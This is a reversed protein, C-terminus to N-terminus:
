RSKEKKSGNESAKTDMSPIFASMTIGNKPHPSIGLKGDFVRLREEMSFLGLGCERVASDTDLRDGECTVVVTIGGTVSELSVLIADIDPLLKYVSRLSEQAVRYLCLAKDPPIEGPSPKAAFRVPVDYDAQFQACEHRLAPELGLDDLVAPHIKHAVQHLKAAIANVKRTLSTLRDTAESGRRLYKKLASIQMGLGVLEQSFVDHLDRAIRRSGDEQAILLAQTLQLRRQDRLREVFQATRRAYLDLWTLQQESPPNPGQFYTSFVGTVKRHSDFLPAAQLARYGAAAAAARNPTSNTELNVDAVVMRQGARASRDVTSDATAMGDGFRELFNAPFGRQAALKLGRKPEDLLHIAGYDAGLLAVGAALIEGLGVELDHCRWVGDTTELMKRLSGAEAALQSIYGALAAESRKRATIDSIFAAGLTRRGVRSFSLNVEVPFEAGNKRRGALEMQRPAPLGKPRIRRWPKLLAEVSEGPLEGRRYGFMAEARANALRILGEEDWALVAQATSDLLALATEAQEARKLTKRDSGTAQATTAGPKRAM